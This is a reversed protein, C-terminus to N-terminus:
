LVWGDDVHTVGVLTISDDCGYQIVVDGCDNHGVCFDGSIDIRDGDHGDFCNISDHGGSKDDFVFKDHFHSDATYCQDGREDHM